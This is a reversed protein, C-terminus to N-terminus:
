LENEEYQRYYKIKSCFKTVFAFNCKKKSFIIDGGKSYPYLITDVIIESIYDIAFRKIFKGIAILVKLIIM